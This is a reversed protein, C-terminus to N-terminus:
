GKRTQDSSKVAKQVDPHQSIQDKIWGEITSKMANVIGEGSVGGVNVQGGFTVNHSVTVSSLQGALGAMTKSFGDFSGIFATLSEISKAFGSMDPMQPQGGGDGGGDEAYPDVNGGDQYRRIKGGGSYGGVRGGRALHVAGGNAFNASRWGPRASQMAKEVATLPKDSKPYQRNTYGDYKPKAKPATAGMTSTPAVPTAAPKATARKNLVQNWSDQDGYLSKMREPSYKDKDRQRADAIEKLMAQREEGEAFQNAGSRSYKTRVQSEESDANVNIMQGMGAMESLYGPVGRMAAKRTNANRQQAFNQPDNMVSRTVPTGALDRHVNQPGVQAMSPFEQEAQMKNQRRQAARARAGARGGRAHYEPVLSTGRMLLEYSNSRKNPVINTGRELVEYPSKGHRSTNGKYTHTSGAAQGNGKNSHNTLQYTTDGAYGQRAFIQDDLDPKISGPDNVKPKTTKPTITKESPKGGLTTGKPLVGGLGVEDSSIASLKKNQYAQKAKDAYSFKKPGLVADKIKGARSVAADKLNGAKSIAGRAISATTSQNNISGPALRKAGRGIVASTLFGVGAKQGESLNDLAGSNNLATLGINTATNTAAATAVAVGRAGPALGAGAQLAVAGTQGVVSGFQSASSKLSEQSGFAANQVSTVAANAGVDVGVQRGALDVAGAGLNALGTAGQGAGVGFGRTFELTKEIPGSANKQSELEGQYSAANTAQQAESVGGTFGFKQKINGFFNGFVGKGTEEDMAKKNKVRAIENQKALEAKLAQQKNKEQLANVVVNTMSEAMGVDATPATGGLTGNTLPNFQADSKQRADYIAQLQETSRSVPAMEFNPTQAPAVPSTMQFPAAPTAPTAPNVYDAPSAGPKLGYGQSSASTNGVLQNVSGSATAMNTQQQQSDAVNFFQGQERAQSESELRESRRADRRAIAKQRKNNASRGYNMARGGRRFYSVLGGSAYGNNMAELNDVGISDVASKRIVFEGPTLMAPVTDTGRPTFGGDAKYIIGGKAKAKAVPVAGPKAPIPAGSKKFEEPNKVFALYDNLESLYKAFTKINDEVKTLSTKTSAIIGDIEKVTMKSDTVGAAKQIDQAGEEGKKVKSALQDNFGAIQGTVKDLGELMGKGHMIELDKLEKQAAIEEQYINQLEAILKQEPGSTESMVMNAMDMNGRKAFFNATLQKKISKGADGLEGLLSDIQGRMDSSVADLDGGAAMVEQLAVAADDKSKRQEDSGFAYSAGASTIAERQAKFKELEGLTDSARDSQNALTKLSQELRNATNQLKGAELPDKVGKALQGKAQKLNKGISQVSTYATKGISNFQKAFRQMNKVALPVNKGYAKSVAEVMRGYSDVGQNTLELKRNESENIKDLIKRQEEEAAAWAQLTEKSMSKIAQAYDTFEKTIAERTNASLISPNANEVNGGKGTMRDQIIESLRKGVASGVSIGFGKEVTDEVLKQIDNNAGGTAQAKALSELGTELNPIVTNLDTLNTALREGIPGITKLADLAPQLDAADPMELDFVDGSPIASKLGAVSNGFAADLQDVSKAAQQIGFKFNQLTNKLAKEQVLTGIIADRANREKILAKETELIQLRAELLSKEFERTSQAIEQDRQNTLGQALEGKGAKAARAIDPNYKANLIKTIEEQQAKIAPGIDFNQGLKAMDSMVTTLKQLKVGALRSLANEFNRVSDAAKNFNAKLTESGTDLIKPDFASLEGQAKALETSMKSFQQNVDNLDKSDIKEFFKNVDLIGKASTTFADSIGKAAATVKAGDFDKAFETGIIMGIASGAAGGIMTGIPGFFSGIISGTVGGVASGGVAEKSTSARYDSQAKESLMLTKIMGSRVEAENNASTAFKEMAKNLAAGSKEAQANTSAIIAAYGASAAAFGVIAGEAGKFGHEFFKTIGEKGAKPAGTSSAAGAHKLLAAEDAKVAMEHKKTSIMEALQAAGMNKLNQGIGNIVSFTGTAATIIDAFEKDLGSMQSVVGAVTSALLVLGSSLANGKNTIEDLESKLKDAQTTLAGSGKVQKYAAKLEKSVKFNAADKKIEAFGEKIFKSADIGAKNLADIMKLFTQIQKNGSGLAGGSTTPGQAGAQTNMKRIEVLMKLTAPDLVPGGGAFRQVGVPGGSAFKGVKNMQGLKGYGIAQASKKNIVYEGPTLMAPVTDQNGEGFVNGGSAFRTFASKVAEKGEYSPDLKKKSRIINKDDADPSIKRYSYQLAWDLDTKPPWTSKLQEIDKAPTTKFKGTKNNWDSYDLLKKDIDSRSYYGKWLNTAASSITNDPALRSGAKTVENLLTEYLKLGYGSTAYSLKTRYFDGKKVATIFGTRDNEDGAYKASIANKGTFVEINGYNKDKKLDINSIESIKNKDEKKFTSVLDTIGRDYYKFTNKIDDTIKFRNKYKDNLQKDNLKSLGYASMMTKLSNGKTNDSKSLLNLERYKTLSDAFNPSLLATKIFAHNLDNNSYKSFIDNFESNTDKAVGGINLHQVPGGNAFKGVKNMRNLNGYGIAQASKKNIVYEGPTLMAPVTDTGSAAGGSALWALDAISGGSAKNQVPNRVIFKKLLGLVKAQQEPSGMQDRYSGGLAQNLNAAVDPHLGGKETIPSYQKGKIIFGSGFNNKVLDQLSQQANVSAAKGQIKAQKAAEEEAYGPRVKTNVAAGLGNTVDEFVTVRGIKVHDENKTLDNANFRSRVLKEPDSINDSIAGYIKDELESAGIASKRSKAEFPDGTATIGDLRANSVQSLSKAMGTEKLIDEFRFGRKQDDATNYQELLGKSVKLKSVDVNVNNVDYDLRDEANLKYQQKQPNTADLDAGAPKDFTYSDIRPITIARAARSKGAPGGLAFRQILGGLAAKKKKEKEPTASAYTINGIDIIDEKHNRYGVPAEHAKKQSDIKKEIQNKLGKAYLIDNSIEKKIVKVETFNGEDKHGYDVGYRDDLKKVGKNDSEYIKEGIKGQIYNLIGGGGSTSLAKFRGNNDLDAEGTKPSTFLNAGISVNNIKLKKYDEGAIYKKIKEITEAIKFGDKNNLATAFDENAYEGIGETISIAKDRIDQYKQKEKGIKLPERKSVDGVFKDKDIDVWDAINIDGYGQRSVQTGKILTNGNKDTKTKRITTQGLWSNIPQPEDKSIKGGIGYKNAHALNDAGLKKVSSKRIVFEGPTLMAPVTDGNGSGPVMGGSAFKHIKGGQAKKNGAFSKVSPLLSQGLKLAGFSAILPIMPKLTDAVKIFANAMQLLSSVTSQFATSQTLEKIFRLFEERTKQIQVALSQQATAADKALSGSSNQAVGLAKQAVAFQQILPIVKSVQRFGGLQEVILNFRFDKPDITSLAIGLRKAAEMPGVFQGKMDQLEIGLDRLNNLTDVRQVRTFITRFGTAISEASERTTSRVSTFLAILENLSGGASEFASGTTKVATILDSSEVAFDKSVQNIASLSKELFAVETGTRQAERGFQNLIAIAGETTDEISKFTAALDTQALVKLSGTVKDAAFGAQTLTRAANILEKSSAGLGTAINGVEVELGRLQSVTKGTAQAIKVMEREFEIADGVANKIARTLGVFTGTALTIASFRKAADAISSGLSGISKSAGDAAKGIGRVQSEANALDKIKINLDIGQFQQKLNNVVQSLNKTQLNLEATIAFKSAM